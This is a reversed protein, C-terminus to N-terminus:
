PAGDCRSLDGTLDSFDMDLESLDADSDRLDANLLLDHADTSDLMDDPIELRAREEDDADELPTPWLSFPGVTASLLNLRSSKRERSSSFLGNADAVLAFTALASCFGKNLFFYEETLGLVSSNFLANSAM